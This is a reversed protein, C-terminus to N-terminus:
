LRPKNSAPATVTQMVEAGSRAPNTAQEVVIRVTHAPARRARSAARRVGPQRPFRRRSSVRSGRRSGSRTGARRSRRYAM